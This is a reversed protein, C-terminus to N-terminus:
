PEPFQVDLVVSRFGHLEPPCPQVSPPALRHVDHGAFVDAHLQLVQLQLEVHVVSRVAHRPPLRRRNGGRDSIVRGVTGVLRARRVVLRAAPWGLCPPRSDACSTWSRSTGPFRGVPPRSPRAAIHRRVHEEYADAIRGCRFAEPVALPSPRRPGAGRSEGGAGLCLRPVMMRDHGGWLPTGARVPRPFRVSGSRGRGRAMGHAKRSGTGHTRPGTRVRNRSHKGM